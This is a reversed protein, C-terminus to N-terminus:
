INPLALRQMCPVLLSCGTSFYNAPVQSWAEPQASGATVCCMGPVLDTYILLAINLAPCLPNHILLVSSLFSNDKKLFTYKWCTNFVGTFCHSCSQFYWRLWKNSKVYWRHSLFCFIHISISLLIRGHNFIGCVSVKEDLVTLWFLFHWFVYGWHFRSIFNFKM